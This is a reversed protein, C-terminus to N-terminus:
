LAEGSGCAQTTVGNIGNGVLCEGSTFTNSGTGGQQVTFVRFDGLSEEEGLIERLENINLQIASAFVGISFVGVIFITAFLFKKM